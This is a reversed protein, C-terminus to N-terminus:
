DGCDFPMEKQFIQHTKKTESNILKATLQFDDCDGILRSLFPFYARENGITRFQNIRDNFFIKGNRKTAISLVLDFIEMPVTRKDSIIVNFLVSDTRPKGGNDISDPGFTGDSLSVFRAEIGVIRISTPTQAVALFPMFLFLLLFWFSIRSLKM